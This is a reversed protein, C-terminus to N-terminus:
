KAENALCQMLKPNSKWLGNKNHKAETQLKEFLRKDQPSKIYKMYAVAYGDKVIAQNYTPLDIGAKHIECIYRGYRDKERTSVKYSKGIKLMNKAYTTAAEGAAKMTSLGVGCAKADRQLKNGGFTEPTDIAHARCTFEGKTSSRFVFTDGDSIRQLVAYNTDSGATLSTTIMTAAFLLASLALGFKRYKRPLLRNIYHKNRKM